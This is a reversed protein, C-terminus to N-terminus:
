RGMMKFVLFGVYEYEAIENQYPKAYNYDKYVDPNYGYASCPNEENKVAHLPIPIFYKQQQRERTITNDMM